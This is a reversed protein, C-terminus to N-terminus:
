EERPEDGGTLLYSARGEGLRLGSSRLWGSPRPRRGTSTTAAPGVFDVSGVSPAWIPRTESGGFTFAAHSAARAAWDELERRPLIKRGMETERFSEYREARRKSLVRGADHERRRAAGQSTDMGGIHPFGVRGTFQAPVDGSADHDATRVVEDFGRAGDGM